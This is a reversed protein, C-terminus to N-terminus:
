RKKIKIPSIKLGALSLTRELSVPSGEPPLVFNPNKLITIASQIKAKEKKDLVLLLYEKWAGIALNKNRLLFIATLGKQWYGHNYDPHTMASLEYFGMANEAKNQILYISAMQFYNAAKIEKGKPSNPLLDNAKKYNSLAKPYKELKMLTDGLYSYIEADEPYDSILDELFVRAIAFKKSYFYYKAKKYKPNGTIGTRGYYYNKSKGLLFVPTSICCQIFIFLMLLKM